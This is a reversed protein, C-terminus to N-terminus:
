AAELEAAAQALRLGVVAPTAGADNITVVVDPVKVRAAFDGLVAEWTAAFGRASTHVEVRMKGGLSAPECLAEMNGSGVVGVIVSCVPAPRAPFPGFEFSLHEM